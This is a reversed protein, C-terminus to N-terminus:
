QRGREGAGGAGANGSGLRREIRLTPAPPPGQLAAPPEVSVIGLRRRYAIEFAATFGAKTAARLSALNGREVAVWVREIGQAGADAAIGALVYPYIGRGRASTLTFSEYVYLHHPPPVLYARLERTWAGVTTAWSSHVIRNGELVLFCRTTDSLRARFTEPAETGIDRAYRLGDAPTAPRVDLGTRPPPAGGPARFFVILGDNSFAANRARSLAESAVEGLGRARM